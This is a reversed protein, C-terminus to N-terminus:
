GMGSAMRAHRMGAMGFALRQLAMRGEGKCATLRGGRWDGDSQQDSAQTSPALAALADDM